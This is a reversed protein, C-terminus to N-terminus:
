ETCVHIFLIKEVRENMQDFRELATSRARLHYVFISVDICHNYQLSVFWFIPALSTSFHPKKYINKLYLTKSEWLSLKTVTFVKSDFIKIFKSTKSTGSDSYYTKVFHIYRHIYTHIFRYKTETMVGSSISPILQVKAHM